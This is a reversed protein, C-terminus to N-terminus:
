RRVKERILKELYETGAKTSAIIVPGFVTGIVLGLFFDWFGPGPSAIPAGVTSTTSPRGRM